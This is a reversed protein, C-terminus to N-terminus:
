AKHPTFVPQIEQRTFILWLLISLPLGFVFDILGLTLYAHPEGFVYVAVTFFVVGAWRAFVALQATIRHSVPDIAAPIYFLSLLILLNAAFSVWIPTAAAEIKLLGLVTNPSFLAPVAVAVNVAIGLWMIRRFWRVATDTQRDDRPM